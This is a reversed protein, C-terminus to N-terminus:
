VIRWIEGRIVNVGSEPVTIAELVKQIRQEVAGIQNTSQVIPWIDDLM